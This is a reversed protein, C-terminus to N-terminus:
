HTLDATSLYLLITTYYTNEKSIAFTLALRILALCSVIIIVFHIIIYVTKYIVVKTSKCCTKKKIAKVNILKKIYTKYIVVKTSNSCTM